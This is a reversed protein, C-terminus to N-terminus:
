NPKATKMTRKFVVTSKTSQARAHTGFKVTGHSATNALWIYKSELMLGM